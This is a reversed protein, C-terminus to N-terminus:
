PGSAEVSHYVSEGDNPDAGAELLLRTMEPSHVVGAAGYLASMQGYENEFFAGPDAGRALLSACLEVPAFCSHTVYLLPAWGLPGGPESVDGDWGRGLVLGVWPDDEVDPLPPAGRGSTAARVFDSATAM